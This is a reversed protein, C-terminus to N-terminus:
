DCGLEVQLTILVDGNIVISPLEKLLVGFLLPKVSDEFLQVSLNIWHTFCRLSARIWPYARFVDLDLNLLRLSEGGCDNRLLTRCFLVSWQLVRKM